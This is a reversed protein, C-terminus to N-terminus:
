RQALGGFPTFHGNNFHIQILAREPVAKSIEFSLNGSMSRFSRGFRTVSLRFADLVTAVTVSIAGALFSGLRHVPGGVKVLATQWSM